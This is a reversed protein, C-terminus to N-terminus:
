LDEYSSNTCSGILAASIRSTSIGKSELMQKVQSIPTALDPSFPGNVHPELASLDIEIVRDYHAKPDARLMDANHDCHDALEQRDTAVLYQRMQSDYPFVSCTAGVEAGMNCITAKGTCSLTETGSGFYELIAGTGGRVTLQGALNLIVDKPATWGSLRGTLKVGIVKPFTLEWPIGAMADVADAGGVGIALMGLGGANPTHSDTGIMLQGPTAYNELVLQHIIGSGPRWFEIGYRRSFSELMQYVEEDTSLSRKLDTGEGAKATILHDCHISTPVATSKRGSQMFQLLAMQASADQMAVRDPRLRLQTIGRRLPMRDQGGAQESSLVQQRLQEEVDVHSYITKEALTLPRGALEPFSGIVRNLRHKSRTLHQM